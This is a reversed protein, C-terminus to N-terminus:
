VTEMSTTRSFFVGAADHHNAVRAVNGVISRAAARLRDILEAYGDQGNAARRKQERAIHARAQQARHHFFRM